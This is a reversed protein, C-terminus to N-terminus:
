KKGCGSCSKTKTEVENAAGSRNMVQLISKWKGVPDESFRTWGCSIDPCSFMSQYDEGVDNCPMTNVELIDVPGGCDPCYYFEDREINRTPNIITGGKRKFIVFERFEAMSVEQRELTDMLEVLEQMRAFNFGRLFKEIEKHRTESEYEMSGGKIASGNGTINHYGGCRMSALRPQIIIAGPRLSQGSVDRHRPQYGNALGTRVLHAKKQCQIVLGNQV